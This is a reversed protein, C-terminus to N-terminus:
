LLSRSQCFDRQLPAYRRTHMHAKKKKKKPLLPTKVCPKSSSLCANYWKLWVEWDWRHMKLTEKSSFMKVPLYLWDGGLSQVLIYFSRNGWVKVLLIIDFM